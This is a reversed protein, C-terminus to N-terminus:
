FSSFHVNGQRAANMRRQDVPQVRQLNCFDKVRQLSLDQQNLLGKGALSVHLSQCMSLAATLPLQMQESFAISDSCWKATEMHLTVETCRTILTRPNQELSCRKGFM